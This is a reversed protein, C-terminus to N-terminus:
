FRTNLFDIAPIAPDKAPYCGPFADSIMAIFARAEQRTHFAGARLKYYPKEHTWDAPVDPFLTLFQTKGDEVQRRDTTAMVQVRWGSIGTGSQNAAIWTEVLQHVLPEDLTQIEQGQAAIPFCAIGALFFFVKVLKM